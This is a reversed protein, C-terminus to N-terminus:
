LLFVFIGVIALVIADAVTPMHHFLACVLMAWGAGGFSAAISQKLM